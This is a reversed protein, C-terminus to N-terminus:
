NQSFFVPISFIKLARLFDVSLWTAILLSFHGNLLLGRLYDTFVPTGLFKAVKVPLCRHQPRKQCFCGSSTNQLFPMRLIKWIECSFVQTATDKILNTLFKILFLSWYLHKGTFNALNKLVGIKFFMQLRSSRNQIFSCAWCLHNGTLNAFNKLVGIEFFMQKMQKSFM